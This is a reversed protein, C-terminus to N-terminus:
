WRQYLVAGKGKEWYYQYERARQYSKEEVKRKEELFDQYETKIEEITMDALHSNWYDIANEYWGTVECKTSTIQKKCNPCWIDYPTNGYYVSYHNPKFGCRCPKLDDTKFESM